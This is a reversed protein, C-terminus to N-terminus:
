QQAILAAAVKQEVWRARQTQKAAAEEAKTTGKRLLQLAKEM